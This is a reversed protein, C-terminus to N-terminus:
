LREEEIARAARAMQAVARVQNALVGKELSSAPRSLVAMGAQAGSKTQGFSAWFLRYPADTMSVDIADEPLSGVSYTKLPATVFEAGRGRSFPGVHVTENMYLGLFATRATQARLYRVLPLIAELGAGFGFAAMGVQWAADGRLYHGDADRRAFGRQEFGTLMRYGTSLPLDARKIVDRANETPAILEANLSEFRDVARQYPTKSSM